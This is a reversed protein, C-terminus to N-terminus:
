DELGAHLLYPGYVSIFILYAGGWCAAAAPLVISDSAGTSPGFVRLIAGINVLLYMFVTNRDAHRPRGTHGLSARTMVALTMAGVSGTTLAHLADTMPLFYGLVAIGLLLLSLALWGYGVHLILVLPEAYTLWGYWRRLRWLNIFGATLLLWGTVSSDPRIMWSLAGMAVLFISLGDFRTFASPQHAMPSQSLLEGTFIPTLRGGILALLVMILGLGIRPVSDTAMGSLVLVHYWINAVAYLTLLVGIPTQRWSGGAAIERWVIGALAILFTADVLSTLVPPLWPIAMALRGAIWLIWLVMLERGQIPPRDTWNPIATLVFGSIVAPLFGFVM